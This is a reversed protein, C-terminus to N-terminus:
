YHTPVSRIARIVEDADDLGDATGVFSTDRPDTLIALEQEVNGRLAAVLRRRQDPDLPRFDM